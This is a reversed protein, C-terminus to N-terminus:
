STCFAANSLQDRFSALFSSPAILAYAFHLREFLLQRRLQLQGAACIGQSAESVEDVTLGELLARVDQHEPPAAIVELDDHLRRLGDVVGLYIARNIALSAEVRLQEGAKM